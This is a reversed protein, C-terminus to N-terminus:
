RAGKRRNCTQCLLQLNRATSPGGKSWAVIHDYELWETTGCHRCRGNDRRWVENRIAEPIPRRQRAPQATRPHARKHRRAIEFIVAGAAIAELAQWHGKATGIIGGIVLIIGVLMYDDATRPLLNTRKRRRAM